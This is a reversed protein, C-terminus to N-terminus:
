VKTFLSLSKLTRVGEIHYRLYTQLLAIMENEMSPSLTVQGVSRIPASRLRSLSELIRKSVKVGGTNHEKHCDSCVVSGSALHIFAFAGSRNEAVDRGCRSCRQVDLGYGFIEALRLEFAFFINAPNKMSADVAGLSELLLSFMSQNEEENHMIMNVLEIMALGVAMKDGDDNLKLFPSAIESQSLLHLERHEKKYVIMSSHMMPELSAGFKNKASRAGKAIVRIKGYKRSYLTVIKSTDGYKMSRLVIADTSVIM